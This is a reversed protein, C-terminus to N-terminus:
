GEMAQSPAENSRVARGDTTCRLLGPFPSSRIVPSSDSSISGSLRPSRPAGRRRYLAVPHCRAPPEIEPFFSDPVDLSRRAAPPRQLHPDGAFPFCSASPLDPLDADALHKDDRTLRVRRIM